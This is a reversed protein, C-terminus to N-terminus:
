TRPESSLTSASYNQVLPDQLEDAIEPPGLDTDRRRLREVRQGGGGLDPEVIPLRELGRQGRREDLLRTIAVGEVADEVEIEELRLRQALAQALRQAGLVRADLLHDIAQRAFLSELEVVQALQEQTTAAGLHLHGDAGAAALDPELAQHVEELDAVER